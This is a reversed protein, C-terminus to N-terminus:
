REVVQGSFKRSKSKDFGRGAIPKAKHKRKDPDFGNSRRIRNGKAILKRDQATKIKHCPNAHIPRRNDMDDSGGLERAIMHEDHWVQGPLIPEGCYYCIREHRELFAERQAGKLPKRPATNYTM